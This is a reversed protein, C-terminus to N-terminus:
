ALVEKRYINALYTILQRIVGGVVVKELWASLTGSTYGDQTATLDYGYFAPIFLNYGTGTGKMTINSYQLLGGISYDAYASKINNISTTGSNSNVGETSVHQRRLSVTSSVLVFPIINTDKASITKTGTKLAWEGKPVNVFGFAELTKETIKSSGGKRTILAQGM